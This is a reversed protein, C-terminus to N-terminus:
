QQYPYQSFLLRPIYYATYMSHDYEQIIQIPHLLASYQLALYAVRSNVRQLYVITSHHKGTPFVGSRLLLKYVARLCCVAILEVAKNKYCTKNTHIPRTTTSGYTLTHKSWKTVTSLCPEVSLWEADMKGRKAWENANKM